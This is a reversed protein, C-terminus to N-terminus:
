YGTDLYFRAGCFDHHLSPACQSRDEKDPMRVKRAQSDFHDILTRLLNYDTADNFDVSRVIVTIADVLVGHLRYEYPM